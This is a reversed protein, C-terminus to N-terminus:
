EKVGKSGERRWRGGGREKTGRQAGVKWGEHKKGVQRVKRVQARKIKKSKKKGERRDEGEERGDQGRKRGEM